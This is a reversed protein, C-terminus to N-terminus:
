PGSTLYVSHNQPQIRTWFALNVLEPGVPFFSLLKLSDRHGLDLWGKGGLDLLGKGAKEREVSQEPGGLM